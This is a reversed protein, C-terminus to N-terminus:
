FVQFLQVESLAPLPPPRPLFLPFLTAPLIYESTPFYKPMAMASKILKSLMSHTTMPPPM